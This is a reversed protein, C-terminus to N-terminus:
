RFIPSASVGSAFIEDFHKDLSDDALNGTM